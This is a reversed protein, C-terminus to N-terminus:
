SANLFTMVHTRTNLHAHAIVYIHTVRNRLNHELVHTRNRGRHIIHRVAGEVIVFVDEGAEGRALQQVGRHAGPAPVHLLYDCLIQM